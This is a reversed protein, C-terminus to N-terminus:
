VQVLVEAPRLGVQGQRRIKDDWDQCSFALVELRLEEIVVYVETCRLVKDYNLNLARKLAM